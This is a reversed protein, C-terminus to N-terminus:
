KQLNELIEEIGPWSEIPETSRVRHMGAKAFREYAAEAMDTYDVVGPVVVASSCDDLLYIKSALSADQQRIESLLDGITWTVCHSKAEGAVVLADLKQLKNFLKGSRSAIKKAHPGELVEPGIASYSETLAYSGKSILDLQQYRAITHFFFAEEVASVLAHGIGGLMAHYPWITLDYKEQEQLQRVYHLLYEEGYDPDIGLSPAISPNFRWRGREIDDVTIVTPPDPHQGMEDVLFIPHFIQMAQHTDLTATIETIRHLNRYIFETLRRSDDVAGSGSRGAVYLEFGPICFTNQTDVALLGIRFTDEAAPSIDYGEAWQRAQEAREQYPVKWVDGVSEPDYFSPLPLTKGNQQNQELSEMM